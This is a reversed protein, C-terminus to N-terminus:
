STEQHPTRPLLRHVGAGAIMSGVFCWGWLWWVTGGMDACWALWEAAPDACGSARSASAAVWAPLLLGSFWPFAAGALWAWACARLALPPARRGRRGVVVRLALAFGATAVLAVATAALPLVPWHLWPGAALAAQPMLQRVAVAWAWASLGVALGYALAAM